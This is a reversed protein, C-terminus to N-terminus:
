MVFSQVANYCVSESIHHLYFVYFNSTNFTKENRPLENM